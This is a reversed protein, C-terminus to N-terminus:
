DAAPRIRMEEELEDMEILIQEMERILFEIRQCAETENFFDRITDLANGIEAVARDLSGCALRDRITIGDRWAEFDVYLQRITSFVDAASSRIEFGPVANDLWTGFEKFNEGFYEFADTYCRFRRRLNMTEALDTSRLSINKLQTIM